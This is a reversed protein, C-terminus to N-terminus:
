KGDRRRGSQGGVGEKERMKGAQDGGYGSWVEDDNKRGVPELHHPTRNDVLACHRLDSIIEAM